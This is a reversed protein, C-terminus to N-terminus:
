LWLGRLRSEITESLERYVSCRPAPAVKSAIGLDGAADLARKVAAGEVKAVQEPSIKAISPVPIRVPQPKANGLKVARWNTVRCRDSCFRADRRGEFERGCTECKKRMSGFSFPM